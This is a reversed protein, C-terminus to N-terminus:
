EANVATRALERQLLNYESGILEIATHLRDSREAARQHQPGPRSGDARRGAIARAQTLHEAALTLHEVIDDIPEYMAEDEDRICCAILLAEADIGNSGPM